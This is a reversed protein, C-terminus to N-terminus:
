EREKERKRMESFSGNETQGNLNGRMKRVYIEKGMYMTCNKKNRLCIRVSMLVTVTLRFTMEFKCIRFIMPTNGKMWKEIAGMKDIYYVLLDCACFLVYLKHFVSAIHLTCKCKTVACAVALVDKKQNNSIFRLILYFTKTLVRGSSQMLHVMSTPWYTPRMPTSDLWLFFQGVSIDKEDKRNM